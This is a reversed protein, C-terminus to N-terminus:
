YERFYTYAGVTKVEGSAMGAFVNADEMSLPMGLDKAFTAEESVRDFADWSIFTGVGNPHKRISATDTRTYRSM